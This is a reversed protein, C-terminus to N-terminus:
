VLEKMEQDKDGMMVPTASIYPRGKTLNPPGRYEQFPSKKRPISSAIPLAM